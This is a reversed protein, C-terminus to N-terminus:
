EGGRLENLTAAPIRDELRQIYKERDAITKIAEKERESLALARESMASLSRQSESLRTERELLVKNLSKLSAGMAVVAVLCLTGTSIATVRWKVSSQILAEKEKQLGKLLAPISTGRESLAMRSESLRESMASEGESTTKASMESIESLPSSRLSDLRDREQEERHYKEIDDRLIYTKKRHQNLLKKTKIRKEAIVNWAHRESCGLLDSADKITIWVEHEGRDNPIQNITDSL